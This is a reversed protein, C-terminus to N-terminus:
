EATVIAAHLVISPNSSDRVVVLYKSGQVAEFTENTLMIVKTDAIKNDAGVSYVEVDQKALDKTDYNVTATATAGSATGSPLTALINDNDVIGKFSYSYSKGDKGTYSITYKSGSLLMYNGLDINASDTDDGSFSVAATTTVDSDDTIVASNTVANTSSVSLKMNSGNVINVGIVYDGNAKVDTGAFGITFSKDEVNGVYDKAGSKESLTCVYDGRLPQSLTLTVVNDKLKTSPVIVGSKNNSDVYSISYSGVSKLNESYTLQVTNVNVAKVDTIQPADTDSTSFYIDTSKSSDSETDNQDLVNDGSLDEVFASFYFKHETGSKFSGLTTIDLVTDDDSDVKYTYDTPIAGKKLMISESFRVKLTEVDPEDYSVVTARDNQTDTGDFKIDQHKGTDDNNDNAYIYENNSKDTIGTIDNITYSKAYENTFRVVLTQADDTLSVDNYSTNDIKVVANNENIAEDFHIRIEKTNVPEVWEVSPATVDASTRLAVFKATVGSTVNGSLDKVGDITVTYTKNATQDATTLTVTNDSDKYVAKIAKGLDGLDYNTADQASAKDLSEDFKLVVSNSANSVASTVVPASLRQKSGVFSKVADKAVNGFEDDINSMTLKYSKAEQPTTTLRVTKMGGLSSDYQDDELIEAKEAKLDDSFVYNAPDTAGSGLASADKIQVDVTTNSSSKPQGITPAVTDAYRGYFIVNTDKMVNASVSADKLNKITLTYKKGTTQNDSTIIDIADFLGDSNGALDLATVNKIPLENTGDSITYNAVTEASAKDIGHVDTFNVRIRNPTLVKISGNLTPATTDFAPAFSKSASSKMVVGDSNAIKSVTLTYAKGKVCGDTTLTVVKRTDDLVASKVTASNNLVYNAVTEASAKDVFKDFTVEVTNTDTGQVKSVTPAGTVKAIGTFNAKAAGVSLAYAKGATMADTTLVVKTGELTADSVKLATTTGKEVITYDGANADPTADSKFSVEVKNNAIAKVGTVSDAKVDVPTSTGNIAATIEGLAATSVQGGLPTVNKVKDKKATLVKELDDNATEDVLVIPSSSQAALVSGALADVLHNNASNAVYVKTFDLDDKFQDVVAANTALRNAGALRTGYDKAVVGTGGVTYVTKGDLDTPVNKNNDTLEIAMGEKAAISAISLADALGTGSVVAVKSYSGLEKNIAAATEYRSTGQLVKVTYGEAELQAKASAPVAGVLYINKVSAHKKLEDIVSQEVKDTGLTLLIPAKKQSALPAVALSDVLHADAGNAIVATTSDTYGAYVKEAIAISTEVRGTGAVAPDATVAAKVPMVSVTSLVLSMVTASALARQGKKSM